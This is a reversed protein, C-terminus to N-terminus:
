TKPVSARLATAIVHAYVSCYQPLPHTHDPYFMSDKSHHYWDALHAEHWGRLWETIAGNSENQWNTNNRVNVVIVDPVGRLAVKLAHLDQSYLPGNNGVQIIM